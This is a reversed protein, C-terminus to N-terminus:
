NQKDYSNEGICSYSVDNEERILKKIIDINEKYTIIEYKDIDSNMSNILDINIIPMFVINRNNTKCECFSYYSNYINSYIQNIIETKNLELTKILKDINDISIILKEDKNPFMLVDQDKIISYDELFLIINDYLYDKNADLITMRFNFNDNKVFYVLYIKNQYKMEGIFKRQWTTYGNGKVEWSPYFEIKSNYFIASIMSIIKIRELYKKNRCPVYVKINYKEFLNKVGVKTLKLYYRDYSKIWKNRILKNIRRKPYKIGYVLEADTRKIIKFKALYKLFELDKEDINEDGLKM